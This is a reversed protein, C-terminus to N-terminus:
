TRLKLIPLSFSAFDRGLNQVPLPQSYHTNSFDNQLLLLKDTVITMDHKKYIFAPKQRYQM